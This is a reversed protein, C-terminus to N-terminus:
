CLRLGGLYSRDPRHFFAPLRDLYVAFPTHELQIYLLASSDKGVLKETLM